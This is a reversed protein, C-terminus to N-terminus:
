SSFSDKLELFSKKTSIELKKDFLRLNLALKRTIENKTDIEGKIFRSVVDNAFCLYDKKNNIWEIQESRINLIGAKTSQLEKENKQMALSFVEQTIEVDARLNVLNSIREELESEKKKLDSIIKKNDDLKTTSQSLDNIAKNYTKESISIDKLKEMITDEIGKRTIAKQSCFGKSKSCRYYLIDIISPKDMKSILMKCRPCKVAKKISFKLKCNTCIAQLKRDPTVTCGCEGCFIMGRYPYDYSRERTNSNPKGHLIIQAKQYDVPSIMRKHKGNYRVPEGNQDRWYYVGSYFENSFTNHYANKSYCKNRNNRLGIAEGKRMIEVISYKGTLVLDWLKKVKNFRNKDPIIEIAGLQYNHNHVYGIPLNVCPNWGREAKQRMGRKVDISLDKVYQNAMGFEVQMLLVNDAPNYEREFTQIHKIINQQLMWSIQGGDIPNRALRNLKWTLIGQAEGKQIRKLMTSFGVRGPEKASKSESITDIVNLNYREALKKAEAIQDEISAMQRDESESSKRAYLIYKYNISRM